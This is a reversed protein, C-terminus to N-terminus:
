GMENWSLIVFEFLEDRGLNEFKTGQLEPQKRPTEIPEEPLTM